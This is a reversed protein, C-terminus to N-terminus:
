LAGLLYYRSDSLEVNNFFEFIGWLKCLKCIVSNCVGCFSKTVEKQHTVNVFLAYNIYFVASIM